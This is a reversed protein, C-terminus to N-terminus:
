SNIRVIMIVSGNDADSYWRPSICQSEIVAEKRDNDCFYRTKLDLPM